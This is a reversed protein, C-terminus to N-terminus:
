SSQPRWRAIRREFPQVLAMEIALMVIVFAFSYALIRPVDFL